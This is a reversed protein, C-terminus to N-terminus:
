RYNANQQFSYVGQTGFCLQPLVLPPRVDRSNENPNLRHLAQEAKVKLMPWGELLRNGISM